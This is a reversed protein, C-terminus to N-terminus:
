SYSWVSLFARVFVEDPSSDHAAKLTAVVSAKCQSADLASVATRINESMMDVPMHQLYHELMFGLHKILVLPDHENAVHLMISELRHCCTHLLTIADAVDQSVRGCCEIKATRPGTHASSISDLSTHPAHSSCPASM